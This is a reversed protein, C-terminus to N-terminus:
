VISIAIGTLGLLLSLGFTKLVKQFCFGTMREELFLEFSFLESARLLLIAHFILCLILV